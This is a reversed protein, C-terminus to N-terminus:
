HSATMLVLVDKGSAEVGLITGKLFRDKFTKYDGPLILSTKRDIMTPGEKMVIVPKHLPLDHFNSIPYETRSGEAM